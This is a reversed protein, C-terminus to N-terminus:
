DVADHYHRRRYADLSRSRPTLIYTVPCNLGRKKSEGGANAAVVVMAGFLRRDDDDPIIKRLLSVMVITVTLNNLISSLFFTLFGIIWFLQKKSDTKIANTM